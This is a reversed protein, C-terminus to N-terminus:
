HWSYRRFGSWEWFYWKSSYSFASLKYLGRCFLPLSAMVLRLESRFRHTSFSPFRKECMVARAWFREWIEGNTNLPTKIPDEERLASMENNAVFLPHFVCEVRKKGLFFFLSLTQWQLSSGCKNLNYGERNAMIAACRDSLKSLLSISAVLERKQDRFWLLIWPLLDRIKISTM